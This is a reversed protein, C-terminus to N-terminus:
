LISIFFDRTYKNWILIQTIAFDKVFETEYIKTRM